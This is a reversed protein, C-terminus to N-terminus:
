NLEKIRIDRFRVPMTHGLFGVYGSPNHLGPHKKGDPTGGESDIDKVSTALIVKGNVTVTVDEGCVVIEEENWEGVPKLCDRQAAVVGYISGHYQWAKLHQKKDGTNDLVQIEMGNYAADRLLENGGVLAGGDFCQRGARIAFGNNGNPVLKFSFRAVFNTFPRNFFLNGFNHPGEKFVLEGSEVSFLDTRGVWGNLDKGNFLHVFGKEDDTGSMVCRDCVCGCLALVAAVPILKNM